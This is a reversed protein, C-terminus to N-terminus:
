LGYCGYEEEQGHWAGGLPGLRGRVGAGRRKNCEGPAHGERYAIAAAAEPKWKGGGHATECADERRRHWRQEMPLLYGAAAAPRPVLAAARLAGAVPTAAGWGRAGEGSIVVGGGLQQPQESCSQLV